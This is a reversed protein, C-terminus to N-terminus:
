LAKTRASETMPLVDSGPQVPLIVLAPRCVRLGLVLIPAVTKPLTVRKQVREAAMVAEFASSIMGLAHRLRVSRGVPMFHVGAVVVAVMSVVAQLEMMAVSMTRIVASRSMAAFGMPLALRRKAVHWVNVKVLVRVVFATLVSAPIVSLMVVVLNM